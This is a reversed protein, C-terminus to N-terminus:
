RCSKIPIKKYVSVSGTIYLKNSTINELYDRVAAHHEGFPRHGTESRLWPHAVVGMGRKLKPFFTRDKSRQVMSGHPFLPKGAWFLTYTKESAAPERGHKGGRM